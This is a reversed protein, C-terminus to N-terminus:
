FTDTLQERTKEDSWLHVSLPRGDPLGDLGGGHDQLTEHGVGLVLKHHPGDVHVPDTRGALDVRGHAGETLDVVCRWSAPDFDQLIAM